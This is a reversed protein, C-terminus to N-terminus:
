YHHSNDIYGETMRRAPRFDRILEVGTLESYDSRLQAGTIRGLTEALLRERTDGIDYLGGDNEDTLTIDPTLGTDPVTEHLSNYYRFTIPQLKWEYRRDEITWSGVGKGTSRTGIKVTNMFPALTNILSESASATHSSIIFWAQDLGLNHGGILAATSFYLLSEENGTQAYQEAALNKNYSHYGSLSGLQEDKLMLSALYQCISVHGGPNYRLDVIIDTVGADKFRTFIDRLEQRYPNNIVSTGDIFANYFLYAIRSDGIHYVSDLSVAETYEGEQQQIHVQQSPIFAGNDMSGTTIVLSNGKGRYEEIRFWDGRRLGADKAARGVLLLRYVVEGDATRYAAYDIGYRDYNSYNSYAPNLEIWSFRDGQYKLRDFFKQPYEEMDLSATDPLLEEWLYDSKMREYTWRNQEMVKLDKERDGPDIIIEDEIYSDSADKYCGELLLCAVLPLLYKPALNM